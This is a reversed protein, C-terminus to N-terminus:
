PAGAQSYLWHLSSPIRMWLCPALNKISDTCSQSEAVSKEPPDSFKRRKMLVNPNPKQWRCDLLGSSQFSAQVKDENYYNNIHIVKLTQREPLNFLIKFKTLFVLFGTKRWLCSKLCITEAMELCWLRCGLWEAAPSFGKDPHYGLEQGVFSHAYYPSM